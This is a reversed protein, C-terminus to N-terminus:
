IFVNFLKVNSAFQPSRKVLRICFSLWNVDSLM